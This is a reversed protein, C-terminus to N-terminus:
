IDCGSQSTSATKYTSFQPGPLIGQGLDFCWLYSLDSKFLAPLLRSEKNQTVSGHEQKKNKNKGRQVQPM